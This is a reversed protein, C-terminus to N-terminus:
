SPKGTGTQAAHKDLWARIADTIVRRVPQDAQEAFDELRQRDAGLRISLPKETHRDPM